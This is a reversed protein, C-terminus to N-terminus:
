ADGLLRRRFAEASGLYEEPEDLRDLQDATLVNAAEPLGRVVDAFRDVPHRSAALADGLLRHARDRGLAPALLMMVRESFVAGNTADINARM